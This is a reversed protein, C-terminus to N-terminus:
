RQVVAAAEYCCTCFLALGVPPDLFVLKSFVPVLLFLGEGAPNMRKDWQGWTVSFSSVEQDSSLVVPVCRIFYM